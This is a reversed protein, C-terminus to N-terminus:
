ELNLKDEITKVDNFLAHFEREKGRIFAKFSEDIHFHGFFWKEFDIEFMIWDFFGTLEGDEILPYMQLMTKIIEKPATHTIIYDVKNGANKLAEIGRKYEEDNPLEQRWWSINEQRMGKDVSYAGGFTFFKKDEITYIRGRELHYINDRIKHVPAGYREVEPYKYLENFNEHNGDIFLIEYPRTALDDLAMDNSKKGTYDDSNYWILGFDGCVILKDDATWKSEGHMCEDCFRWAEGHIDGTIYIM